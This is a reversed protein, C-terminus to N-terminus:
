PQALVKALLDGNGYKWIRNDLLYHHLNVLVFAGLSFFEIGTRAQAWSHDLWGPIAEIFVFGVVVLVAYRFYKRSPGRIQVTRAETNEVKNVFVLYQLAHAITPYAVAFVPVYRAPIIWFYFACLGVMAGLPPLRKQERANPIIVVALVVLLSALAAANGAQTWAPALNLVPAVLGNRSFSGGATNLALVDSTWVAYLHALVVNRQLRTLGYGAKRTYVIFVGFTQLGAHWGSLCVMGIFLQSMLVRGWGTWTALSVALLLVLLAPGVYLAFRNKASFAASQSYAYVYSFLYHPFVVFVFLLHVVSTALSSLAGGTAGHPALLLEGFLVAWIAISLGGLCLAEAAVSRAKVM